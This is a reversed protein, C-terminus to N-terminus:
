ASITGLTPSGQVIAGSPGVWARQAAILSQHSAIAAEKALQTQDQLGQAQTKAAESQVKAAEAQILAAEAQSKIPEYVKIMERVQSVVAGFTLAILIITIWERVKKSRDERQEEKRYARGEATIADILATFDASPRDGNNDSSKRWDEKSQEKNENNNKARIESDSM